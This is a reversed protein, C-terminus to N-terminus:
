QQGGATQTQNTRSQTVLPIVMEVPAVNRLNEGNKAALQFSIRLAAPLNTDSLTTDWSERWNMGDYCWVDWQEVDGILWQVVPEEVAPALLNRTVSRVLDKGKAEPRDLPDRLMYAVKQIDGWPADDNIAGTTTFFELSVGHALALGMNNNNLAASTTTGAMGSSPSTGMGTGMGAATGLFGSRFSAALVGGPPMTGRLDRRLMALAQNLPLSEDLATTTKQRLHLASFFVTNMAALVIAFIAVALLVEILTFGGAARVGSAARGPQATRRSRAPPNRTM